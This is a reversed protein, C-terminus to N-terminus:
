PTHVQPRDQPTMSRNLAAGPVVSCGSPCPPVMSAMPAVTFGDCTLKEGRIDARSPPNTQLRVRAEIEGAFAPDDM